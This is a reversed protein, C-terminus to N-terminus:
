KKLAPSTDCVGGLHVGLLTTIVKLLAKKTCQIYIMILITELSLQNTGLFKYSDCSFRVHENTVIM